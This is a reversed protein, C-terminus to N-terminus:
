AAAPVEIVAGDIGLTFTTKTLDDATGFSNKASLVVAVFYFSTPTGADSPQDELVVRFAYSYQEEAAARAAIQGVDLPDRACILAVSGSDITGKRRRTYKDGLNKFTIETGEAGWEGLDEVEGIEVWDGATTIATFETLLKAESAPGIYVKAGATSNITM